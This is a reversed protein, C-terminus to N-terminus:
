LFEVNGGGFQRSLDVHWHISDSPDDVTLARDRGIRRQPEAVPEAGARFKPEIQLLKILQAQRALFNAVTNFCLVRRLHQYDGVDFM